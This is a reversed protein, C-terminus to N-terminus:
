LIHLRDAAAKMYLSFAKYQTVFQVNSSWKTGAPITNALAPHAVLFLAYLLSRRISQYTQITLGAKELKRAISPHESVLKEIDLVDWTAQAGPGIVAALQADVTIQTRSQQLLTDLSTHTDRNTIKLAKWFKTMQNISELTLVVTTDMLPSATVPRTSGPIAGLLVSLVLGSLNVFV